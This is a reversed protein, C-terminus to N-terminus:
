KTRVNSAELDIIFKDLLPQSKCKELLVDYTIRYTRRGGDGPLVITELRGRKIWTTVTNTCVEFLLAVEKITFLRKQGIKQKSM